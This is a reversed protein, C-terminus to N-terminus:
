APASHRIWIHRPRPPFHLGIIWSALGAALGLIESGHLLVGRLPGTGAFWAQAFFPEVMPLVITAGIAVAIAVMFAMVKSM